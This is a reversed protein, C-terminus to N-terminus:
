NYNKYLKIDVNIITNVGIFYIEDVKIEGNLVAEDGQDINNKM